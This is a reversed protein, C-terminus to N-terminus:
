FNKATKRTAQRYKGPTTGTEQVFLSHFYTVSKFGVFDAIAASSWDSETLLSKAEAIRCETLIQVFTKGTENKIQRAFQARSLHLHKAADELTPSQQLNSQMFERIAVAFDVEDRQPTESQSKPGPQSYRGAQLERQLVAFFVNLLNHCNQRSHSEDDIAEATLLSFLQIIKEGRLIYNESIVYHHEKNESLCLWCQVANRHLIINLLECYGSDNLVHSTTGDPHPTGPPLLIFHGEGAQVLYDNVQYAVRGRTVIVLKRNEIENLHAEPWRAKQERANAYIRRNKVITRKGPIKQSDLQVGEPLESTKMVPRAVVIREGAGNAAWPILKDRLLQTLTSM